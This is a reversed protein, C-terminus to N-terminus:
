MLESWCWNQVQQESGEDSEPQTELQCCYGQMGSGAGQFRSELYWPTEKASRFCNLSWVRHCRSVQPNYREPLPTPVASGRRRSRPAGPFQSGNRGAQFACWLMLNVHIASSLMLFEIQCQLNEMHWCTHVKGTPSTSSPNSSSHSVTTSM